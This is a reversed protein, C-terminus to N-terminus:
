EIPPRKFITVGPATGVFKEVQVLTSHATPGQALKSTGRDPTLVNPNGHVELSGPQGQILPDYWAGTSLEIVSPRISTCILAGALIAGRNNFVKVVDGTQISRFAADQPNIRLPERGAIKTEQSIKSYDLQAHLRDRPQNSVMHLPFEEALKSGLWETPELWTPHGPCDDYGFSDITESFIEIKGSPTKRKFKSPNLRFDEMAVFPKNPAPIEVFGRSWFEDFTPLIIDKKVANHCAIDYIKKIWDQENRGETFNDTLGLGEAIDSFIDFDNRAQHLPEVLKQMAIWFRDRGSAGIDNREMTSTAPLVIDAHRATSTWWPEHVIITEPKRWAKLLRNLDQHHHFPNGGCWYVLRIHPYKRQTGNFDYPTGPNLLMDAIRAVPIYSKTPNDGMSMTPASLTVHPNGYGNMSGYGCGFGNGPLGIRGLMAALTITM